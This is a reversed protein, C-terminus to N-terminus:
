MYNKGDYITKYIICVYMSYLQSQVSSQCNNNIKQVSTLFLHKRSFCNWFWKVMWKAWYLSVTDALNSIVIYTYQLLECAALSGTLLCVSLWVSLCVTLSDSLRVSLCVCPSGSPYRFTQGKLSSWWTIERVATGLHDVRIEKKEGGGTPVSNCQATDVDGPIVHSVLAM